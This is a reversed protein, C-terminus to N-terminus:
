VTETHCRSEPQNTYSTHTGAEKCMRPLMQSLQNVGLSVTTHWFSDKAVTVRRPQLYLAKADPLIKKLYKELSTVPSLANGQEEYM